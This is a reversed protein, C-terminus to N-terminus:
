EEITQGKNARVEQLWRTLARGRITAKPEGRGGRRLRGLGKRSQGSIKHNARVGTQQGAKQGPNRVSVRPSCPSWLKRKEQQAWNKGTRDEKRSTKGGQSFAGSDGIKPPKKGEGAVREVQRPDQRDPAWQGDQEGRGKKEEGLGQVKRSKSAIEDGEWSKKEAALRPSSKSEKETKCGRRSTQGPGVFTEKATGEDQERPDSGVGGWDEKREFRL